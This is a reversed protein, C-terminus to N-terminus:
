DGAGGVCFYGECVVSRLHNRAAGISRANTVGSRKSSCAGDRGSPPSSSPRSMGPVSYSIERSAIPCTMLTPPRALAMAM